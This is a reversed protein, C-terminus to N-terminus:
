KFNKVWDDFGKKYAEVTKAPGTLKIHYLEHPGEFHIALMRYNPKKEVKGRAAFPPPNFTGQVDLYTAPRDGIKIEKVTAVDDIKKGAPPTFQAKWREINAKSEGSIGKFIVLEADDKDDGKRPLRFQLWRLTGSPKEEIWDVPTKSKLGDFDVEVSKGKETDDAATSESATPSCSLALLALGLFGLLQRMPEEEM